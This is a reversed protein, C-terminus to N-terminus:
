FKVERYSAISKRLNKRQEETPECTCLMRYADSYSKGTRREILHAMAAPVCVLEMLDFWIMTQESYGQELLVSKCLDQIEGYERGTFFMEKNPLPMSFVPISKNKRVLDYRESSTRGTLIDMLVAKISEARSSIMWEGKKWAVVRRKKPRPNQDEDDTLWSLTTDFTKKYEEELCNM